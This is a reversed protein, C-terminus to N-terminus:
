RRVKVRLPVNVPSGSTTAVGQSAEEPARRGRASPGRISDGTVLAHRVARHSARAAGCDALQLAAYPTSGGGGVVVDGSQWGGVEACPQCRPEVARQPALTAGPHRWFSVLCKTWQARQLWAVACWRAGRWSRFRASLRSSPIALQAAGAV